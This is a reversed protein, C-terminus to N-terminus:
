SNGYYKRLFKVDADAIAVGLVKCGRVRYQELMYSLFAGQVSGYPLLLIVGDAKGAEAWDVDSPEINGSNRNGIDSIGQRSVHVEAVNGHVSRLYSLTSDYDAQLREQVGQKVADEAETVAGASEFCYGCFSVDTVKRV